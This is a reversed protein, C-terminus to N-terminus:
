QWLSPQQETQWLRALLTVLSQIWTCVVFPLALATWHNIWAFVFFPLSSVPHHPLCLDLGFFSTWVPLCHFLSCTPSLFRLSLWFDGPPCLCEDERVQKRSGPHSVIHKRPHQPWNTAQLTFFKSSSDVAPGGHVLMYCSCGRTAEVSDKNTTKARM